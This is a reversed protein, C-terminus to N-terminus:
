LKEEYVATLKEKKKDVSLGLMPFMDVFLSKKIEYDLPSDTKFSPAHNVELLMPKLNSDLIIDFGLLEFAMHNELDAPQNLRYSHSLERQISLMTKVIIDKIDAWISDVDKKNNRLKNLLSTVSRKHGSEDNISSAQKFNSNEKNLAYNTLHIFMNKMLSSDSKISIPEYHQTAFRVLGEEHLFIKLPDSSMVLVYLRMDFKLGDVLFPTNLYEQVVSPESLNISDIDHTLYIGRGQAEHDPKCIM